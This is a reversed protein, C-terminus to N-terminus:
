EGAQTHESPDSSIHSREGFLFAPASDNRGRFARLVRAAGDENDLDVDVMLSGILPDSAVVSIGDDAIRAVVVEFGRARLEDGLARAARAVATGTVIEEGYAAVVKLPLTAAPHTRSM